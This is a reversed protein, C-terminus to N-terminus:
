PEYYLDCVLVDGLTGALTWLVTIPSRGVATGTGNTEAAGMAAGTSDLTQPTLGTLTDDLAIMVRNIATVARYDRAAADLYLVRSDADTLQIKSSVDTTNSANFGLIRAHRTRLNVAGTASTADSTLSIRAREIGSKYWFWLTATDAATAGTITMTVPSKIVARATGQVGTNAAGTADAAIYGTLGSRTDDLSIMQDKATTYDRDGVDLFFKRGDGDAFQVTVGTDGTTVLRFGEFLGFDGKLPFTVAYTTTGTNTATIVAREYSM